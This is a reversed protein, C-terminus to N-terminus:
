IALGVTTPPVHPLATAAVVAVAPVPVIVTALRCNGAPCDEHVTVTWIVLTGSATFELQEPLGAANVLEPVFTTGVFTVLAIVGLQTTTLGSTGLRFLANLGVVITTPPVVVRVKVTVLGAPKLGACVTLKTSVSGAPRCIAATGFTPPDHVPPETVAAGPVLEMTTDPLMTGALLAAALLQVILTAIVLTGNSAPEQGAAFKVLVAPLMEPATLTVLLTVSLQTETVSSRGLRALDNLGSDILTPPVVVSVNVMVLGAVFLGACATDNTSVNGDPSCTAAVGFTPPVHVPPVTVATPPVFEIDSLPTITGALPAIALVQVTLTSTVLTGNCAPVHGFAFKVFEAPLRVPTTLTLVVLTTGLQTLTFGSVGLRFLANLGVTILTPPVVVSVNVRVLGAANLGACATLKTSVSGAPRCTAATGFIPPLQAPPETVATAPAPVMVTDPLITGALLAAGLVQVIVTSTVLAGCCVLALQACVGALKVLVDSFIPPVTFTVFATVGLQTTTFGNDGVSFLANLGVVIATPPVVTSVKVTVLGAALGASDLTPKTSVKGAPRCSALAVTPPVQTLAAAAVVTTAPPLVIVTALRCTPAPADDHVTVTFTVLTVPCVLALQACVGAFKM